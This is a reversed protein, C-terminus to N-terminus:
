WRPPYFKLRHIVAPCLYGDMWDIAGVLFESSYPQTYLVPITFGQESFFVYFFM